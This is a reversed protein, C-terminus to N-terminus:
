WPNVGIFLKKSKRAVVVAKRADAGGQMGGQRGASNIIAAPRKLILTSWWQRNGGGFTSPLRAHSVTGGCAREAPHFNGLITVFKAIQVSQSRPDPTYMLFYTLSRWDLDTGLDSMHFPKPFFQM